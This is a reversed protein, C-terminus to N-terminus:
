PGAAGVGPNRLGGLRQNALYAKGIDKAIAVGNKVVRVTKHKWKSAQVM